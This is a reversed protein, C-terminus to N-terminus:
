PPRNNGLTIITFPGEEDSGDPDERVFTAHPVLENRSALIYHHLMSSVDDQSQKVMLASCVLDEGRPTLLDYINVSALERAGEISRIRSRGLHGPSASAM